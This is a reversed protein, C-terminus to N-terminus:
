VASNLIRCANGAKKEDAETLFIYYYISKEKNTFIGGLCDPALIELPIRAAKHKTLYRYTQLRSVFTYRALREFHERLGPEKNPNNTEYKYVVPTKRPEPLLDPDQWDLNGIWPALDAWTLQGAFTHLLYPHFTDPFDKLTLPSATLRTILHPHNILYFCVEDITCGFAPLNMHQDEALFCGYEQRFTDWAPSSLLFQIYETLQLKEEPTLAQRRKVKRLIARM